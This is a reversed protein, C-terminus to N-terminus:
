NLERWTIEGEVDVNSSGGIPRICLVIEDVSDDIYSGLRLTNEINKSNEGANGSQVGGSVVFGGAIRYGGTVTNATTGVAIQVASQDIDSFTFTGAVTPNFLLVWQAQNSGTTLLIDTSLIEIIEGIYESKLKIGIIAYLTNETNADVHTGDTGASRIVGLKNQGGESVATSCIQTMTTKPGTGDNSIESRLPLNPSSMYVVINKNANLFEHVYVITGAVFFGFRVRGVGLWEYDIALINAKTPDLIVGSEGTGDMRDLNWDYQAIRTDVPSGSTSSRLVIGYTEGNDEFFIGNSEDFIGERQTIGSSQPGFVFSM